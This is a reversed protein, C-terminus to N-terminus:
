MHTKMVSKKSIARVFQVLLERCDDFVSAFM